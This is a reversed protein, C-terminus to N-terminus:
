RASGALLKTAQANLAAIGAKGLKKRLLRRLEGINPPRADLNHCDSGFVHIHGRNLAAFAQRRTGCATFYEANSQIVAGMALLEGLRERNGGYDVYREMHAIVPTIGATILGRVENVAASSWASFPMELLLLDTKDVCLRRLESEHSIGAFFAVEAGPLVNPYRGFGEASELADRLADYAHIRRATFSGVSENRYYYHPTAIVTEAGQTRLLALMELSEAASRSGDDMDPLVHTHFDIM